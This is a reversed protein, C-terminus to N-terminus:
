FWQLLRDITNIGAWLCDSWEVRVEFFYFKMWDSKRCKAELFQKNQCVWKDYAKLFALMAKLCALKV